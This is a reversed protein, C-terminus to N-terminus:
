WVCNDLGDRRISQDGVSMVYTVSRQKLATYLAHNWM